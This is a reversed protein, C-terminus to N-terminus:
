VFFVLRIDEFIHQMKIFDCHCRLETFKSAFVRANLNRIYQTKVKEKLDHFRWSDFSMFEHLRVRSFRFNRWIVCFNVNFWPIAGAVTCGTHKIIISWLRKLIYIYFFENYINLFLIENEFTTFKCSSIISLNFPYSEIINYPFM